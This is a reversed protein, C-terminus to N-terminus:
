TWIESAKVRIDKACASAENGSSNAYYQQARKDCAKAAEELMRAAFRALMPEYQPWQHLGPYIGLEKAIRKLDTTM